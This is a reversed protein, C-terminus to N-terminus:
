KDKRVREDSPRDSNSHAADSPKPLIKIAIHLSNSGFCFISSIWGIRPKSHDLAQRPLFTQHRM